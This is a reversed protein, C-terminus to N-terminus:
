VEPEYCVEKIKKLNVVKDDIKVTDVDIIRGGNIKLDRLCRMLADPGDPHAMIKAILKEM